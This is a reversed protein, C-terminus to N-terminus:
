REEDEMAEMRSELWAADEPTLGGWLRPPRYTGPQRYANVQYKIERVTWPSLAMGVLFFFMLALAKM